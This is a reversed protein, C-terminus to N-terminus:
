LQVNKLENFFDCKHSCIDHKCISYSGPRLRLIWSPRTKNLCSKAAEDPPMVAYNDGLVTNFRNGHLHVHKGILRFMDM